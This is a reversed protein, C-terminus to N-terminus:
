GVKSRDVALVQGGSPEVIGPGELQAQHVAELRTMVAHGLQACAEVQKLLGGAYADNRKLCWGLVRLVLAAGVCMADGGNEGRAALFECRTGFDHRLAAVREVAADKGNPKPDIVTM